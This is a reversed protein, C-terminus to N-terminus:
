FEGTLIEFIKLPTQTKEKKSETQSARRLASRSRLAGPHSDSPSPYTDFWRLREINVNVAGM